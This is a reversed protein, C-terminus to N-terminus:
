NMRESAGEPASAKGYGAYNVSETHLSAFHPNTRPEEHRPFRTTEDSAFFGLPFTAIIESLFGHIERIM